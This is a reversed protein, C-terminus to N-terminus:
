SHALQHIFESLLTQYRVGLRNAKKKIEVLDQKNIKISLVTDKKRAQISKVISDFDKKAVPKYEGRVLASELEREEKTLKIARM